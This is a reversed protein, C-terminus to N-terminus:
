CSEESHFILFALLSVHLVTFLEIVLFDVLLHSFVQGGTDSDRGLEMNEGRVLGHMSCNSFYPVLYFCPTLGMVMNVIVFLDSLGIEVQRILVIYLNRSSKDDESWIQMESRIRPMHDRPPELTTVVENKEKEGDNKEKEGESLESLLDEEADNRGQEREIRRKSLRIGDDWVIQPLFDFCPFPNLEFSRSSAKETNGICLSKLPHLSSFTPYSLSVFRNKRAHSIGFVGAYIRLGTVANM